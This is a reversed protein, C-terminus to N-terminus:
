RLVREIELVVHASDRRDLSDHSVTARLLAVARLGDPHELVIRDGPRFSGLMDGAHEALEGKRLPQGQEVRTVLAEPLRLQRLDGLSRHVPVLATGLRDLWRRAHQPPEFRTEEGREKAAEREDRWQEAQDIIEQLPMGGDLSHGGTRTRRLAALHAGCGLAEGIDDALARVYTGATCSVRLRIDLQEDRDIGQIELEQIDIDKVPLEVAQGERAYEYLHKGDVRAAAFLPVQQKQPGLFTLVVETIQEDTVADTPRESTVEGTPDMTDTRTGLRIVAEYEKEVVQILPMLRTAGNLMLPLLGTAFPDLTGGHGVKGLRLRSRVIRCVDHSTMGAPKDVLLVGQLLTDQRGSQRRRGRGRGM